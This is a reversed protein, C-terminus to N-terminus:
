KEKNMEQITALIGAGAFGPDEVSSSGLALNKIQEISKIFWTNTPSERALLVDGEISCVDLIGDQVDKILQNDTLWAIAIAHLSDKIRKTFAHIIQGGSRKTNEGPINHGRIIGAKDEKVKHALEKIASFSWIKKEKKHDIKGLSVGEGGIDYVVFFPHPDLEKIKQIVSIPLVDTAAMESIHALINVSLHEQKMLDKIQQRARVRLQLLLRDAANKAVLINGTQGEVRQFEQIYAVQIYEPEDRVVKPPIM